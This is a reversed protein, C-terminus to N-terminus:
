RTGGQLSRRQKNITDRVLAKNAPVPSKMGTNYIPSTSVGAAMNDKHVVGIAYTESIIVERMTLVCMLVNESYRDTTIDLSRLLMNKYHRKGTTVDFPQRNNQLDLLQQYIDRPSTGMSLGTNMDFMRTTDALDLLSGEGSFGLEMVIEAPQKFAHDNIPAGKEVPHETIVLTDTHRESIVVSPVITGIRRKQQSFLVSLIDM